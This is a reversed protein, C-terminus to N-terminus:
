LLCDYSECTIQCVYKPSLKELKKKNSGNIYNLVKKTGKGVTKCNFGKSYPRKSNSDELLKLKTPKLYLMNENIKVTKDTVNTISSHNFNEIFLYFPSWTVESSLMGSFLVKSSLVGSSLVGSSLVWIVVGLHCCGLHFCGLHSCGLYCCGLHCCSLHCCRQHCCGLHCCGSSLVGSSLVGSSLIGSSLIGFTKM